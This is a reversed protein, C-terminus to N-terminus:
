FKATISVSARAFVDTTLTIGTPAILTIEVISM